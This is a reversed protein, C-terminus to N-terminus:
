TPSASTGHAPPPSASDVIADTDMVSTEVHTTQNGAADTKITTKRRTTRNGKVEVETKTYTRAKSAKGACPDVGSTVRSLRSSRRPAAEVAALIEDLSRRDVEDSWITSSPAIRDSINPANSYVFSENCGSEIFDGAFNIVVMFRHSKHPGGAIGVVTFDPNFINLRHGREPVGDDILLQLVMQRADTTVKNYSINEASSRRWRGHRDMREFPTSGDSGAHGISGRRGSDRVHERAAASMGASIRTFPILPRASQLFAITQEVAAVGEATQLRHEGIRMVLGDFSDRILLLHRSYEAPRSRALNLEQFVNEELRSPNAEGGTSRRLTRAQRDEIISNELEAFDRSEQRQLELMRELDVSVRSSPPTSGEVDLDVVDGPAIASGVERGSSWSLRTNSLRGTLGSSASGYPATSGRRELRKSHRRLASM